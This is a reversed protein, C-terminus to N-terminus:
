MTQQRWHPHQRSSSRIVNIIMNKEDRHGFGRQTFIENEGPEFIRRFHFRNFASLFQETWQRGCHRYHKLPDRYNAARLIYSGKMEEAPSGAMGPPGVVVYARSSPDFWQANELLVPGSTFGFSFEDPDAPNHLGGLAYVRDGWSESWSITMKSSRDNCRKEIRQEHSSRWIDARVLALVSGRLTGGHSEFLANEEPFARRKPIEVLSVWAWEVADNDRPDIFAKLTIHYYTEAVATVPLVLLMVTVLLPLLLCSPIKKVVKKTSVPQSRTSFRRNEPLGAIM